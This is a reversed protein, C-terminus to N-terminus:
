SVERSGVGAFKAPSRSRTLTAGKGHGMYAKPNRKSWACSGEHRPIARCPVTLEEAGGYGGIHVMYYLAGECRTGDQGATAGFYLHLGLFHIM